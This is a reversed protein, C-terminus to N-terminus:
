VHYVEPGMVTCANSSLQRFSTFDSAVLARNGYFLVFDTTRAETKKNLAFKDNTANMRM